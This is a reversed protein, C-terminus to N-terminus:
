LRWDTRYTLSASIINAFSGFYGSYGTNNAFPDAPGPGAANIHRSHFFVADYALDLGLDKTIAYGAGLTLAYRPLDVFAPDFASEPLSAAQYYAGGRLQLVDSAKYNAGLGFNITKRPHFQQPNGTNLVASQNATLGSYVVGLQRASWWDYWAMDAELNWKDGTYAYGLQVNQPMFLPATVSTQFNPGGFITAAAGNLGSMSVTGTLGVKASSHYVLGLQHHDNFRFTTGLHYGWGDGTGNLTSNADTSAAAAAAGAGLAQLQTGGGQLTAAYTADGNIQATDVKKALQGSLANFYDVGAGISFGECVKYAVSPTVDIVRLRTDTAAYRLPSDGDFHTELGYPTVAALGAALKGGLFQTTAAFDPVFVSTARAGTVQNADNTFTPSANVYTLGVTAQTGPLSTMAAPNTYAAVPDNQTGAVGTGGQGLSRTSILESSYSATGLAFAQSCMTLSLLAAVVPQLRKKM